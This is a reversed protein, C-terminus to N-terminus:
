IGIPHQFLDRSPPFVHLIIYTKDLLQTLYNSVTLIHNYVVIFICFRTFAFGKLMASLIYFLSKKNLKRFGGPLRHHLNHHQIKCLNCLGAPLISTACLSLLVPNASTSSLFQRLSLPVDFFPFDKLPFYELETVLQTARFHNLFPWRCFTDFFLASGSM